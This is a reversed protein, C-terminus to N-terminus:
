NDMLVVNSYHTLYTVGDVTVQITDSGEFDLWTEVKGAVCTGDPMSIQVHTFTYTTDFWAQNGWAGFLFLVTVMGVLAFITMVAQKM